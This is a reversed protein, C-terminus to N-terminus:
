LPAFSVPLNMPLQDKSKPDALENHYVHAVLSSCAGASGGAAGIRDKNINWKTSKSRIFQLAREADHLPAKM